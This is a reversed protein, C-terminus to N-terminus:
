NRACGSVNLRTKEEMTRPSYDFNNSITLRVRGGKETNSFALTGQHLTAAKAAVALGMGSNERRTRSKDEQWFMEQAHKIAEVSFGAGEDEFVFTTTTPTQEVIMDISGKQPSFRVANEGINILARSLIFPYGYIPQMDAQIINFSLHKAQALSELTAFVDRVLSEVDINEIEEHALDIRSTEQLANVYHRSKTGADHIAQVLQEQEESLIDELLLEANGNIITLPTKIDHALAAIEEKRQQGSEWQQTLSNKLAERMDEMSQLSHDFEKIGSSAIISSELDQSAIQESAAEVLALRGGLNKTMFRALLVYFAMLAVLTLIIFVITADPLITRLVSDTFIVAYSWTFLCSSGDDLTVYEADVYSLTRDSYREIEKGLDSAELSSAIVEGDKDFYVYDYLPEALDYDFSGTKNIREIEARAATEAANAPFAVGFRIAALFILVGAAIIAITGVAVM